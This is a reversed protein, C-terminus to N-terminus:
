ERYLILGLGGIAPNAGLLKQAFYKATSILASNNYPLVNTSVYHDANTHLQYVCAPYELSPYIGILSTESLSYENCFQRQLKKLVAMSQYLNIINRLKQNSQSTPAIICCHMSNELIQRAQRMAMPQDALELLVVPSQLVDKLQSLQESIVSFM